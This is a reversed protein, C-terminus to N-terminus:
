AQSFAVRAVASILRAGSNSSHGSEMWWKGPVIHPRNAVSRARHGVREINRLV